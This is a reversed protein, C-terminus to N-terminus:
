DESVRFYIVGFHANIFIFEKSLVCRTFDKCMWIYYIYKEIYAGYNIM